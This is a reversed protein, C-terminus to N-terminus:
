LKLIINKCHSLSATSGIQLEASFLEETMYAISSPPKALFVLNVMGMNYGSTIVFAIGNGLVCIM